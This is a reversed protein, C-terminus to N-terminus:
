SFLNHLLIATASDVVRDRVLVYGSAVVVSALAEDNLPAAPLEALYFTEGNYRVLTYQGYENHIEISKISSRDRRPFMLLYADKEIREGPDNEGLLEEPLLTPPAKEEEAPLREESIGRFRLCAHEGAGREFDHRARLPDGDARRLEPM